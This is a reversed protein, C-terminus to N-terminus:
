KELMREVGTWDPAIGNNKCHVSKNYFSQASKDMPNKTTIDSFINEAQSFKKSFYLDLGKEFEALTEKKLTIMGEADGDFCEYIKATEEKGKVQVLGLYRLGYKERDSLKDVCNESLLINVGFYKTLGEIRSATNVTDSITAADMRQEDGIIGMILPGAHLGIGMRLSAKNKSIRIRNYSSLEKQMGIAAQLTDDTNEPFIAMIGDGLYQNVFGHHKQIIPGMRQNFANVFRFNQEPTMKESLTTYDRIDSFLVTVQKEVYDGLTADLINKKGLFNLFTSPVFKASAANIAELQQTKERQVNVREQIIERFRLSVYILLSILPTLLAFSFLLNGYLIFANQSFKALVLYITISVMFSFMAVVVAWQVKTTRRWNVIILYIFYGSLLSNLIGFPASIDFLHAIISSLPLTPLLIKSLLSNKKKFIWEGVMLMLVNTLAGTCSWFLIRIKEQAFSLEYLNPLSNGVTTLFNAASLFAILMFVKEAPNQLYMLWFLVMFITSLTVWFTSYTYSSKHYHQVLETFLPGTLNILNSLNEEKLKVHRPTFISEYNAFHIALLYEHGAQLDLPIPIKHNPNYYQFNSKNTGTRGFSYILEGDLYIHTAMWLDRDLSLSISDFSQNLKLKIRFWGELRGNEDKFGSNLQIPKLPKWGTLDINPQDWNKDNGQHFLWGDLSAMQIKQQRNFQDPYITITNEQGQM